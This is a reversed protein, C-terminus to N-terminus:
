WTLRADVKFLPHVHFCITGIVVYLVANDRISRIVAVNVKFLPHVHFCITRIAENLVANDRISRIVAVNM